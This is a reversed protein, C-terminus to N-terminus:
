LHSWNKKNRETKSEEVLQLFCFRKWMDSTLSCGQMLVMAMNHLNKPVPSLIFNSEYSARIWCSPCWVAGWPSNGQDWLLVHLPVRIKNYKKNSFITAYHLLSITGPCTVKCLPEWRSWGQRICRETISRSVGALAGVGAGSPPGLSRLLTDWCVAPRGLSSVQDMAAVGM